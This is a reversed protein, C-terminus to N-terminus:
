YFVGDVVDAIRGTVVNVLLLDPGYRLWRYGAPPPALGLPAYADYYYHPSSLFIPPLLLGTRWRRYYFGPPYHFVPGHIGRHWRGESMFRHPPRTGSPRSGPSPRDPRRIDSRPRDGSRSGPGSRQDSSGDPGGASGPGQPRNVQSQAVLVSSGLVLAAVVVWLDRNV